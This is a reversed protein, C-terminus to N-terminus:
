PDRRRGRVVALGGALLTLASIASAPDIEPADTHHKKSNNGGQDNGGQDNGGQDNGGQDNSYALPAFGAATIALLAVLPTWKRM